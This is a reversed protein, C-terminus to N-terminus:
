KTGGKLLPALASELRSIIPGAQTQAWRRNYSHREGEALMVSVREWEARAFALLAPLWARAALCFAGDDESWSEEMSREGDEEIERGLSVSAHQWEGKTAADCKAQIEDLARGLAAHRDALTPSPM